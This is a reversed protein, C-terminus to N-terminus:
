NLPFSLSLGADAICSGPSRSAECWCQTQRTTLIERLARRRKTEPNFLEVDVPSQLKSNPAFTLGLFMLYSVWCLTSEKLPRRVSGGRFDFKSHRRFILGDPDNYPHNLHAETSPGIPGHFSGTIDSKRGRIREAVMWRLGRFTVETSSSEM